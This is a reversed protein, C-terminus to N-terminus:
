EIPYKELDVMFLGGENFIYLIMQTYMNDTQDIYFLAIYGNEDVAIRNGEEVDGYAAVIEAETSGWKIGKALEIEYVNNLLEGSYSIRAFSIWWITCDKINRVKDTENEFHVQIVAYEKLEEDYFSNNWMDYYEETYEGPQMEDNEEILWGKRNFAGFSHPFSYKEGDVLFDLDTWDDSITKKDCGALGAILMLALVFVGIKKM